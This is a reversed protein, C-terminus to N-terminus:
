VGRRRGGLPDEPDAIRDVDLPTGGREGLSQLCRDFREVQGQRVPGRLLADRKSEGLVRVVGVGGLPGGRREFDSTPASTPRERKPTGARDRERVRPAGMKGDVGVGLTEHTMNEKGCSRPAAMGSQKMSGWSAIR